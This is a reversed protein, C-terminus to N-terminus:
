VFSRHVGYVNVGCLSCLFLSMLSESNVEPIVIELEEKTNRSHFHFKKTREGPQDDTVTNSSM